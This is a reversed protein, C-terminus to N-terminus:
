LSIGAETLMTEVYPVAGQPSRATSGLVRNDVEFPIYRPLDHLTPLMLIAIHKGGEWITGFDMYLALRHGRVRVDYKVVACAVDGIYFLEDSCKQIPRTSKTIGHLNAM